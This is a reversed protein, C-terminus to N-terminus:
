RRLLRLMLERVEPSLSMKSNIANECKDTIHVRTRLEGHSMRSDLALLMKLYTVNELDFRIDSSIRSAAPGLDGAIIDISPKGPYGVIYNLWLRQESYSVFGRDDVTIGDDFRCEIRRWKIDGIPTVNPALNFLRDEYIFSEQTLAWFSKELKSKAYFHSGAVASFLLVFLAFYTVKAKAATSASTIIMLSLPLTLLLFLYGKRLGAGYEINDYILINDYAAHGSIAGSRLSLGASLSQTFYLFFLVIILTLAFFIATNGLPYFVQDREEAKVYEEFFANNKKSSYWWILLYASLILFFMRFLIALLCEIVLGTM